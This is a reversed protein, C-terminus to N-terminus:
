GPEAGDGSIIWVGETVKPCWSGLETAGPGQPGGMGAVDHDIKRAAEAPLFWPHSPPDQGSPSASVVSSARRALLWGLVAWLPCACLMAPQCWSDSARLVWYPPPPSLPCWRFDPEAMQLRFEQLSTQVCGFRSKAPSLERLQFLSGSCGGVKGWGARTLLLLLSRPGLWIWFRRLLM